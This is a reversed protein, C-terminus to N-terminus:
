KALGVVLNITAALIVAGLAYSLLAHRLVTSRISKTTLDTDSVQYTMGVTFALYAFDGYSPPGEENFDVGRRALYFLRAYRVAYVTHVLAWSLAVSAVAVGAATLQSARSHASAIVVAVAALSAMSAVLLLIDTTARGPDERVAHTKTAAADLKWESRWSWVIYSGATVDWAVLPALVGPGFLAMLIGAVAGAVVCVLLRM